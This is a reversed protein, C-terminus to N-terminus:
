AKSILSRLFNLVENDLVNALTSLDSVQLINIFKDLQERSKDALIRRVVKSGLRRNYEKMARELDAVVREVEMRAPLDDGLHLLCIACHPVDKLSIDKESVQCVRLAEALAKFRPPADVDVPEGLEPVANFRELAEAQPDLKDMLRSLAIAESRYSEHFELYASRYRSRFWEFTAAIGQWLGPNEALTTFDMQGLLSARDLALDSQATGLTTDDLYSKVRVIETAVKSFQALKRYTEFSRRLGTPNQFEEVAAYYFDLYSSAHSLTELSDITQTFHSEDQELSRRITELGSKTEALETRLSVLAELLREEQTAIEGKEQSREFDTAISKAYPLITNWSPSAELILAEMSDALSPDYTIEPVMDWTISDGPFPEASASMVSHGPKLEVIARAHRVFALICLVALPETLGYSYVLNELVKQIDIVGGYVSVDKRIIDLTQSDKPNFTIPDDPQTLGLGPGFTLVVEQQSEPDGQFLGRYLSRLDESTIGRPFGGSNIPLTPYLRGFMTSALGHVGDSPDDRQFLGQQGTALGSQTYVMGSSYSRAYGKHIERQLALERERMAKRMQDPQGGTMYRLRAERVSGYEKNMTRVYDTADQGPVVVAIRRDKLASRSIPHSETLFVIRFYLGRPLRNGLEHRWSKAVLM